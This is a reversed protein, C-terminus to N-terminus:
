ALVRELELVIALKQEEFGCCEISLFYLIFFLFSTFGKKPWKFITDSSCIARSGGNSYAQGLDNKRLYFLLGCSDKLVVEKRLLLKLM